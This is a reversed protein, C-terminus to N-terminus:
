RADRAAGDSAGDAVSGADAPATGGAGDVSADAVSCGVQAVLTTGSGGVAAACTSGALVIQGNSEDSWSWGTKGTPDYPLVTGDLTVTITGQSGPVSTTLFTCGGVQNRITVLATDLDAGSSAAYYSTSAGTQPRGGAVAMANLVQTFETDAADQIGIVYTPLGESAHTAISQVTRVNDLCEFADNQCAQPNTGACTCTNPDLADNCNPAGDTALVIARATTAARIGHLVDAAVALAGFTPTGGGPSAQALLTLLAPVHDTAPLLDAATAVDCSLTGGGASDASPFLLAGIEMTSNVPPLTSSLASTLTDWRTSGQGGFKDNMSGSRDLVLMIAPIATVLPFTGPTCAIPAADGAESADESASADNAVSGDVLGSAGSADGLFLATRSGCSVAAALVLLTPALRTLM